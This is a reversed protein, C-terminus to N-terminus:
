LSSQFGPQTREGNSGRSRESRLDPEVPEFATGYRESVGAPLNTDAVIGERRLVGFKPQAANFDQSFRSSIFQAALREEIESVPIQIRPIRKCRVLGRVLRAKVSAVQAAGDHGLPRCEENIEGSRFRAAIRHDIRSCEVRGEPDGREALRDYRGLMAIGERRAEIKLQARVM